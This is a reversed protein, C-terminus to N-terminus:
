TTINTMNGLTTTNDLTSMNDLTTNNTLEEFTINETEGGLVKYVTVGNENVSEIDPESIEPM